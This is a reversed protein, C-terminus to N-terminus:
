MSTYMCRYTLMVLGLTHVLAPLLLLLLAQITAPRAIVDSVLLVVRLMWVLLALYM